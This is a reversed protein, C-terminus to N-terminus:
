RFATPVSLPFRTRYSAVHHASVGQAEQLLQGPRSLGGSEGSWEMRALRKWGLFVLLASLAKSGLPQTNIARGTKRTVQALRRGERPTGRMTQWSHSSSPTGCQAQLGPWLPVTLGSAPCVPLHVTMM